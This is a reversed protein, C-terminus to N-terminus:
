TLVIKASWVRGGIALTTWFLCTFPLAIMGAATEGPQQEM